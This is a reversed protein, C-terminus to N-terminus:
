ESESDKNLIESEYLQSINYELEAAHLKILALEDEDFFFRASENDLISELSELILSGADPSGAKYNSEAEGLWSMSDEKRILGDMMEIRTAIGKEALLEYTNTQLIKNMTTDEMLIFYLIISVFRHWIDKKYLKM